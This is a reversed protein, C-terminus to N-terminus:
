RAFREIWAGRLAAPALGQAEVAFRRLARQLELGELIAAVSANYSRVSFGARVSYTNVYDILTRAAGDARYGECHGLIRDLEPGIRQAADSLWSESDGDFDASLLLYARGDEIPQEDGDLLAGILVCRGFHTGPVRGFPSAHGKPLAALTELLDGTQGDRVPALVILASATHDGGSM